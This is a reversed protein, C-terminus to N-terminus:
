EITIVSKLQKFKDVNLTGLQEYSILGPIDTVVKSKLSM